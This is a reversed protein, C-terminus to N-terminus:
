LDGKIKGGQGMPIIYGQLMNNIDNPELQIRNKWQSFRQLDDQTGLFSVDRQPNMVVAVDSGFENKAKNSIIADNNNEKAKSFLGRQEEYYTNQGKERIPNKTKIVVPYLGDSSKKLKQKFIKDNRTVWDNFTEKGYRLGFVQRFFQEDSANEYGFEAKRQALTKGKGKELNFIGAKNPINQRITKPGLIQNRWLTSNMRGNGQIEKLNWWLKVWNNYGQKDPINRNIGSVYQLSAHPQKNFYMEQGTEPAGSGLGRKASKFGQSFDSNSGHWYIDKLESDKTLSKLYKAYQKKTGIQRLEPNKKFIANVANRLATIKIGHAAYNIM